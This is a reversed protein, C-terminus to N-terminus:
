CFIASLWAQYTVQYNVSNNARGWQVVKRPFRQWNYLSCVNAQIRKKSPYTNSSFSFPLVGLSQSVNTILSTSVEAWTVVSEPTPLVHVERPSPLPPLWGVRCPFKEIANWWTRLQIQQHHKDKVKLTMKSSLKVSMLRFVQDPGLSRRQDLIVIERRRNVHM